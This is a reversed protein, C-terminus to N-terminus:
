PRVADLARIADAARAHATPDLKNALMQAESVRELATGINAAAGDDRHDRVTQQTARLSLKADEFQRSADGFNNHYLSVRAQLIAARSEGIQARLLADSYDREAARRGATGLLYGTVFVAVVGLLAWLVLKGRSMIAM